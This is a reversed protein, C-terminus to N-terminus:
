GLGSGLGGLNIFSFGDFTECEYSAPKQYSLMSQKGGFYDPFDRGRTGATRQNAASMIVLM